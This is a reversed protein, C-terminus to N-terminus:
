EKADWCMGLWGRRACPQRTLEIRQQDRGVGSLLAMKHVTGDIVFLNGKVRYNILQEEGSKSIGVLVPAQNQVLDENMAIYTHYGDDMARLPKFDPKGKVVKIKYDFNLHNVNVTPMDPIGPGGATGAGTSSFDKWVQQPEDPYSFGVSTVYHDFGSVLRIHYTHRDTTIILNTDLGAETPKIILHTARHEDTGSIAPAIRWRVSDGIHPTGQIVEGAQLEIDCLHLPACVITPASEGYPFLMRGLPNRSPMAAPNEAWAHSETLARAAPPSIHIPESHSKAPRAALEGPVICGGPPCNQPDAAPLPASPASPASPGSAAAEHPAALNGPSSAAPAHAAASELAAAKDSTGPLEANLPAAHPATDLPPQSLDPPSQGLVVTSILLMPLLGILNNVTRNM